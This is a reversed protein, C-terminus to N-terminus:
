LLQAAVFVAALAVASATATSKVNKLPLITGSDMAGSGTKASKSSAGETPLRSADAGTGAESPSGAASVATSSDTGAEITFINSYSPPTTQVMLSYSGSTTVADQPISFEKRTNTGSCDITALKKIFRLANSGGTMLNVDVNKAGPSGMSACNGSWQLFVAENVKWTTGKAPNSIALPDAAQALSLMSVLAAM